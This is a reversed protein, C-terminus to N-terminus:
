KIKTEIVYTEKGTKKYGAKLLINDIDVEIDKVVPKYIDNLQKFEEKVLNTLFGTKQIGRISLSKQIAFAIRRVKKIDGLEVTRQKSDLLTKNKSVLWNILKSVPATSSSTGEDVAEGYENGLINYNYVVDTTKEGKIELSDKLSGSANIPGTINGSKYSRTRDTKEIELKALKLLNKSYEALYKKTNHLRMSM